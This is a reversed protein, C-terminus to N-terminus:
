SEEPPVFEGGLLIGRCIAFITAQDFQVVCVQKVAELAYEIQLIRGQPSWVSIDNDYQNRYQVHLSVISM